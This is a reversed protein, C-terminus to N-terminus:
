ESKEGEGIVSGREGGVVIVSLSLFLVLSLSYLFSLSFYGSGSYNGPSFRFPIALSLFPFILVLSLSLILFSVIHTVSLFLSVFRLHFLAISLLSLWLSLCAAFSLYQSLVFKRYIQWIVLVQASCPGCSCTCPIELICASVSGNLVTGSALSCRMVSACVWECVESSLATGFGVSCKLCCLSEAIRGELVGLKLCIEFSCHM